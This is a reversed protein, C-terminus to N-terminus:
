GGIKGHYDRRALRLWEAYWESHEWDEDPPKGSPQIIVPEEM